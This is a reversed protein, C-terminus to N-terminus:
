DRGFWSFPNLGRRKRQGEPAPATDQGAPGRQGTAASGGMGPPAAKGTLRAYLGPESIFLATVAGPKADDVLRAQGTAINAIAFSTVGTAGLGGLLLEDTDQNYDLVMVGAPVGPVPIPAGATATGGQLSIPVAELRNSTKNSGVVLLGDRRMFIRRADMQLEITRIYPRDLPSVSSSEGHSILIYQGGPAVDFHQGSIGDTSGQVLLREGDYRKALQASVSGDTANRWLNLTEPALPNCMHQQAYVLAEFQGEAVIYLMNGAANRHVHVDKTPVGQPGCASAMLGAIDQDTLTVVNGQSFATGVCACLSVLVVVHKWM